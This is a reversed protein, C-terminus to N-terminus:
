QKLKRMADVRMHIMAFVGLFSKDFVNYVSTAISPVFCVMTEKIHTKFRLEKLPIRSIYKSLGPWVIFNTILQTLVMIVFYLMLDDSNRVFLFIAAVGLVKVTVVRIALYRYEELGYFLWTIDFLVALVNISLVLYYNSYQRSFM